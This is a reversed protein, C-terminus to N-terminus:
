VGPQPQFYALTRVLGTELAISPQWGLAARAHDAKVYSNRIEGAIAPGYTPTQTYGTLAQLVRFVANISTGQGTGLNYAGTARQECILANAAACDAVYLFDRLQEGDGNITLPQNAVMCRAFIAVVGGEGGANQRPGYVNPYRLIATPLGYNQQYVTVYHEVTHKSIGYPSLPAVPHHEDCPLYTPEGYIAGSSSIYLLHQVGFQRACELVNLAGLINVRADAIPDELSARVNVLAAHHSVHTPREQAFVAALAAADCVDVEYFTAAPNLNARAGASLNDVVVVAWGRAIFLDAVHSGIFGAGGTLLLKRAPHSVPSM